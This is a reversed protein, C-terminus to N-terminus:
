LWPLREVFDLVPTCRTAPVLGDSALYPSPDTIFEGGMYSWHAFQGESLVIFGHRNATKGSSEHARMILPSLDWRSTALRDNYGGDAVLICYPRGQAFTRASEGVTFPWIAILLLSISVICAITAARRRHVARLRSVTALLGSGALVTLLLILTARVGIQHAISPGFELVFAVVVTALISMRTPVWNLKEVLAGRRKAFAAALDRLGAVLLTALLGLFMLGRGFFSWNESTPVPRAMLWLIACWVPVLIAVLWPFMDRPCVLVFLWCTFLFLLLLQAPLITQIIDGLTM